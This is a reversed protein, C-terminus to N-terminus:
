DNNQDHTKVYALRARIIQKTADNNQFLPHTPDPLFRPDTLLPKFREDDLNLASHQPKSDTPKSRKKAKTSRKKPQKAKSRPTPDVQSDEGSSDSSLPDDSSPSDDDARESRSRKKQGPNRPSDAHLHRSKTPLAEYLKFFSTCASDTPAQPSTSSPHQRLADRQQKKLSRQADMYDYFAHKPDYNASSNLLRQVSENPQLEPADDFTIELNKNPPDPAVSSSNVLELLRAYKAKKKPTKLPPAPQDHLNPPQLPPLSEEASEESSSPPALYKDYDNEGMERWAEQHKTIAVRERPTEDWTLKVNTLRLASNEFNPGVYNDSASYASDKISRGDFSIDDPVFSLNLQCGTMEIDDHDLQEYLATATSVSDCEVIAFYYFMRCLEYFRLHVDPEASSSSATATSNCLKQLLPSDLTPSDRNEGETAKASLHCGNASGSVDVGEAPRSDVLRSRFWELEEQDPEVMPGAEQERRLRREGFDSVYIVVSKIVGQSSVFSNFLTFLDAANLRNWDCKVVALRRTEGGVQSLHTELREYIQGFVGVDQAEEDEESLDSDSESREGRSVRGNEPPHRSYFDAWFATADFEGEEQEHSREDDARASERDPPSSLVRGLNALMSLRWSRTRSRRRDIAPSAGARFVPEDGEHGADLRRQGCDAARRSREEPESTGGSRGSGVDSRSSWCQDEKKPGRREGEGDEHTAERGEPEGPREGSDGAGSKRVVLSFKKDTMMSWFRPDLELKQPSPKKTSFRRDTLLKSFRPDATAM